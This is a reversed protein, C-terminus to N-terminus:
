KGKAKPRIEVLRRIASYTPPVNPPTLKGDLRDKAYKRTKRDPFIDGFKLVASELTWDKLGLDVLRQFSSEDSEVIRKIAGATGYEHRIRIFPILHYDLDAARRLMEDVFQDLKM